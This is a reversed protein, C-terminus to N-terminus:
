AIPSPPSGAMNYLDGTNNGHIVHVPLEYKQLVRLTDPSWTAATCCRKRATRRPMSSPPALLRRNDHSDSLICVKM